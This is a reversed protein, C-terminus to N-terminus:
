KDLTVRSTPLLALSLALHGAEWQVRAGDGGCVRKGMRSQKERLKRVSSTFVPSLVANAPLWDMESRSAKGPFVPYCTGNGCLALSLHFSHLSAQPVGSPCGAVPDARPPWLHVAVLSKAM